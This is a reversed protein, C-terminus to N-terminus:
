STLNYYFFVNNYIWCGKVDLNYIKSQAEFSLAKLHRMSVTPREYVHRWFHNLAFLVIFRDINPTTSNNLEHQHCSPM